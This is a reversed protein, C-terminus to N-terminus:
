SAAQASQDTIAGDAKPARKRQQAARQWDGGRSEQGAWQVRRTVADETERGLAVFGLVLAGVGVFLVLGFGLIALDM